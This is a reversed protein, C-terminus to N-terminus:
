HQHQQTSLRTVGDLLGEPSFCGSGEPKLPIGMQRFISASDRAGWRRVILGDRFVFWEMAVVEYSKGTPPTGRFPASFTGRETYRVAVADGEQIMMEVQLNMKFCTILQEWIPRVKDMGGWGLVGYVLADPAFPRCLGDVDGRNFANVYDLVVAKNDPTSM